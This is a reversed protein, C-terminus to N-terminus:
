SGPSLHTETFILSITSWFPAPDESVALLAMEGIDDIRGYGSFSYKDPILDDGSILIQRIVMPGFLPESNAIKEALRQCSGLAESRDGSMCALNFRELFSPLNFEALFLTERDSLPEGIVEEFSAGDPSLRDWGDLKYPQYESVRLQVNPIATTYCSRELILDDGEIFEISQLNELEPVSM